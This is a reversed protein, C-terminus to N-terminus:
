TLPASRAKLANTSRKSSLAAQLERIAKEIEAIQGEEYQRDVKGIHRAVERIASLAEKTVIDADADDDIYLMAEGDHKGGLMGRSM